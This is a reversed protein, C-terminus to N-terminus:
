QQLHGDDGAIPVAGRRRHREAVVDLALQRHREVRGGRQERKKLRPQCDREVDEPASTTRERGARRFLPLTLPRQFSFGGWVSSKVDSGPGVSKPRKVAYANAEVNM